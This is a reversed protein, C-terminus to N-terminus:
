VCLSLGVQVEGNIIGGLNVKIVIVNMEICTM